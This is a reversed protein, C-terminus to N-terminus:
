RSRMSPSRTARRSTANWSRACRASASTWGCRRDRTSRSGFWSTWIGPRTTSGSSTTSISACSRPWSGAPDLPAAEARLAALREARAAARADRYAELYARKDAYPKRSEFSWATADGRAADGPYLLRLRDTLAPAEAAVRALLTDADYFVSDGFNLPFGREDLFCAPGMPVVHRADVAQVASLFQTLLRETEQAVHGAM